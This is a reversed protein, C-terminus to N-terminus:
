GFETDVQHRHLSGSRVRRSGTRSSAEWAALVIVPLFVVTVITMLYWYYGWADFDWVYWLWITCGHGLMATVSWLTARRWQIGPLLSAALPVIWIVYWARQNTSAVFMFLFMVEFCALAFRQPRSWCVAMWIAIGIAVTAYATNRVVEASIDAVSSERLSAMVAWAPSANVRAGQEQASDWIADLDFFPYLSFGILCLAGVVSWGVTALRHRPDPARRWVSILALPLLIVTVYKILASGMLLPIVWRYHGRQWAWLAAMVPLMLTVDNHANAIGDWMVLPNWLWALAAVLSWEPHTAKVIDYVFWTIALASVVSLLKFGIVALAVSEGGIWTIPAALQNWFPGYPSLNDAWERSAFRMYPDTDWYIDPRVANPNQGYHSLLRSRAAYIYVDIANTPYMAVFSVLVVATTLCVVRWNSRFGQGRFGRLLNWTCWLWLGLGLIWTAFAIPSYEVLKGQDLLEGRHPWFPYQVAWM